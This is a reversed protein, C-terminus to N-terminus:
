KYTIKVVSGTQLLDRLSRAFPEPVRVCGHSQNLFSGSHIRIGEVSNKIEMAYAMWGWKSRRGVQSNEHEEFKQGISWTGSAPQSERTSCQCPSRGVINDDELIDVWGSGNEHLNISISVSKTIGSWIWGSLPRDPQKSTKGLLQHINKLDGSVRWIITTGAPAGVDWLFPNLNKSQCGALHAMIVREAEPTKKGSAGFRLLKGNSEGFTLGDLTISDAQSQSTLALIFFIAVLIQKFFNM